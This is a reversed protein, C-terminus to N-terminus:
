KRRYFFSSSGGDLDAVAFDLTPITINISQFKIMLGYYLGSNPKFLAFGYPFSTSGGGLGSSLLGNAAFEAYLSTSPDPKNNWTLTDPDWDTDMLYVRVTSVVNQDVLPADVTVGANVQADVFSFSDAAFPRAYHLFSWATFNFSNNPITASGFNNKYVTTPNDDRVRNRITSVIDWRGQPLLTVPRIKKIENADRFFSPM